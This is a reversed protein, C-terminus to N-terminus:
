IKINTFYVSGRVTVSDRGHTLTFIPALEHAMQRATEHRIFKEIKAHSWREAEPPLQGKSVKMDIKLQTLNNTIYQLALEKEPRQTVPDLKQAWNRLLKAIKRKM